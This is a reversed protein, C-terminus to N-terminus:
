PEVLFCRSLDWMDYLLIAAFVFVGTVLVPEVYLEDAMTLTCAVIELALGISLILFGAMLHAFYRDPITKLDSKEYTFAFNGSILGALLLSVVTLINSKEGSPILAVSEQVWPWAWYYLCLIIASDKVVNEIFVYSVFKYNHSM